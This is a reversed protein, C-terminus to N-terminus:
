STRGFRLRERKRPVGDRSSQALANRQKVILGCEDVHVERGIQETAQHVLQLGAVIWVDGRPQLSESARCTAPVEIRLTQKALGEDAVCVM